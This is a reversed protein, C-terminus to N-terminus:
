ESPSVDREGKDILTRLRDAFALRENESLDTPALRRRLAISGIVLTALVAIISGITPLSVWGTKEQLNGTSQRYASSSTMMEEPTAWRDDSAMTTAMTIVDGMAPNYDVTDEVIRKIDQLTQSNPRVQFTITVYLRLGDPRRERDIKVDSQKTAKEEEPIASADDSQVMGLPKETVAGGMPKNANNAPSQAASAVQTIKVDVQITEHHNSDALSQKIKSIFSQEVTTGDPIATSPLVQPVFDTSVIGGHQDLVVVNEVDLDPVAAAVLRRIGRVTSGLLLTGSRTAITVSAKPPIREARFITAETLTLHVRAMEVSDLSMITRALEGQLARQYNIKQAFETLGMDSKNFLEFGVMGKLPLDQSMVALRTTNILDTPMLITAGGDELKYPVKRRDLEAVIAAADMTRLGSFLIGYSAHFFTFFIAILLGFLIVTGVVITTLGPKVLSTKLEELLPM